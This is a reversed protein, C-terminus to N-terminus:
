LDDWCHKSLTGMAGRLFHICPSDRQLLINTRLYLKTMPDLYLETMPDRFVAQLRSFRRDSARVTEDQSLFYSHFAVYLKLIREVPTLLSLWCPSVYKLLIERSEISCFQSFERLEGKRKTSHDFYYFVDVAVEEVDFGSALELDKAGKHATNHLFHCSCGLTYILSPNKAELRTKISNHRGVNALASDVSLAIYLQVM